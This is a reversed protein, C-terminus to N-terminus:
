TILFRQYEIIPALKTTFTFIGTASKKILLIANEQVIIEVINKDSTKKSVRYFYGVKM